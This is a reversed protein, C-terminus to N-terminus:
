IHINLMSEVKLVARWWSGRDTNSSEYKNSKIPQPMAVYTTPMARRRAVRESITRRLSAADPLTSKSQLDYDLESNHSTQSTM